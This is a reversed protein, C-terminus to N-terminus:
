GLVKKVTATLSDAKFPKVLWGTAGAAKAQSKKEASTETTLVLIPVRAYHPEKRLASVLELGNMRPMNVDVIVLSVREKKAVELGHMGDNAVHVQHGASKLVSSVLGRISASDDVALISAM